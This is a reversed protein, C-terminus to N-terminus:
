VLNGTEQITDAWWVVRLDLFYATNDHNWLPARMLSYVQGVLQRLVLIELYSGVPPHKPTDHKGTAAKQETLVEHSAGNKGHM